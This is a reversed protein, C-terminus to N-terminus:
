GGYVNREESHERRKGFGRGRGRDEVKSELQRVHRHTRIYHYTMKCGIKKEREHADNTDTQVHRQREQTKRDTGDNKDNRGNRGNRGNTTKSM